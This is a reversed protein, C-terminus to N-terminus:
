LNLKGLSGSHLLNVKLSINFSAYLVVEILIIKLVNRKLKRGIALIVFNQEIHKNKIIHKNKVGIDIINLYGILVLKIYINM